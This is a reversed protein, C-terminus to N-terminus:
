PLTSEGKFSLRALLRNFYYKFPFGISANNMGFALKQSLKWIPDTGYIEIRRMLFRSTDYRNFGSRTSLAIKFNADKIVDISEESFLGYPYAFAVVSKKLKNEIIKKSEFVEKYAEDRSLESLRPHTMTHAGFSIGNDSMDKIQDWNLMNREPFGREVMWQNTKGICGATLFITAPIQYRKLIPYANEYNDMFGDDITVAVTKKKFPKQNMMHDLVKGMSIINFNRALYRMHKEFLIPPCAYRIEAKAEPISIIHYMLILM